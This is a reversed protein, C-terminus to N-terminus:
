LDNPTCENDICTAQESCDDNSECYKPLCHMYTRNNWFSGSSCWPRDPSCGDDYGNWDPDAQRCEQCLKHGGPAYSCIPGYMSGSSQCNMGSNCVNGDKPDISFTPNVCHGFQCVQGAGNTDCDINSVCQNPQVLAPTICTLTQMDIGGPCYEAATPKNLCIGVKTEGPALAECHPLTKLIIIGSVISKHETAGICPIQGDTTCYLEIPLIPVFTWQLSVWDWHKEYGLNPVATLVNYECQRYFPNCRVGGMGDLVTQM